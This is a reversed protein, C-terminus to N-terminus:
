GGLGKLVQVVQAVSLGEVRVGGPGHVVLVGEAEVERKVAVPHFAATSTEPSM